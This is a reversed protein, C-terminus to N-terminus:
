IIERFVESTAFPIDAEVEAECVLTESLNSRDVLQLLLARSGARFPSSRVRRGRVLRELLKDKGMERKM